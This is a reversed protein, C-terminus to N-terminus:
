ASDLVTKINDDIRNNSYVAFEKYTIKNAFLPQPFLIVIAITLTGTLITLSIVKLVRKFIKKM